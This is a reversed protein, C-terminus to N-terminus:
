DIDLWGWFEKYKIIEEEKEGCYLPVQLTANAVKRFKTLGLVVLGQLINGLDTLDEMEARTKGTKDYDKLLGYSIADIHESM